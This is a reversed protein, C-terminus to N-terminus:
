LQASPLRAAWSPIGKEQNRTGCGMEAAHKLVATPFLARATGTLGPPHPDEM